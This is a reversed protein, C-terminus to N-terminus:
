KFKFGLKFKPNFVRYFIFLFPILFDLSFSFRLAAWVVWSPGALSRAWAGAGGSLRAGGTLPPKRERASERERESEARQLQCTPALQKARARGEERETERARNALRQATAERM